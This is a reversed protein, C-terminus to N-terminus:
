LVSGAVTGMIVMFALAMGAKSVAIPMVADSTNPNTCLAFGNKTYQSLCRLLTSNANNVTTTNCYANCDQNYFAIPNAGCCTQLATINKTGQTNIACAVGSVPIPGIGNGFDCTTLNTITTM